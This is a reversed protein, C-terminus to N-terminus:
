ELLDDPQYNRGATNGMIEPWRSAPIGRGARKATVNDESFTEGKLIVTSAILSKQVVPRIRLESAQPQKEGDGLAKEINRIAKVMAAFEGPELSAKHDPGPLTKDLTLHKEIIVAGLAVAAVAAEIGMTHDSYGVPVGFHEKLTLMARLNVEEFPTPYNSTCHLLFVSGAGSDVLIRFAIEVEELTAMGTSLIVDKGKRGVQSLYLLNTIEGSGIKILELRLDNALFNLSEEEDPTSLFQIGIRQCYDKIKRFDEYSIELQKSMEYQSTYFGANQKQYEALEAEKLMLADTKWTQFKVIDAGAEKAADCLRYALDTSGNHNVGAEAIVLVPKPTIGATPEM